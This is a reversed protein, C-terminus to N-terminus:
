LYLLVKLCYVERSIDILTINQCIKYGNDNDNAMIM